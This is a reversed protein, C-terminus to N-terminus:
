LWAGNRKINIIINLNSIDVRTFFGVNGDTSMGTPSGCIRVFGANANDITFQEWEGSLDINKAYGSAGSTTMVFGKIATYDSKYIGSYATTSIDLGKVYVVDGNQVPIYNTLCTTSSDTRNVGASSCRGGSIWGYSPSAPDTDAYYVVSSPITTNVVCFNTPEVTQIETAVATIVINGTVNSITITGGSVATSSIDTGGMTVTVSSLEYGSNATITASYPTGGIAESASNSNVCNTLNNTVSYYVNSDLVLNGIDITSGDEMEYKVTYAGDALNGSVVINNESDVYGVIDGGTAMQIGNGVPVGNVLLYILGDTHIGLSLNNKSLADINARSREKQSDTLNQESDFRVTGDDTIDFTTDNITLTKMEIM